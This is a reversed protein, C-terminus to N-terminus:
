SERSLQTSIFEYAQSAVEERSHEGDVILVPINKQRRIMDCITLYAERLETLKEVNEHVQKQEGRSDIRKCATEPATDIFIVLDPLIMSNLRLYGLYKLEPFERYIGANQHIEATHGTLISVAAACVEDNFSEKKYLAAWAIMNLLPSGDLIISDSVYWRILEHHLHNRLMLETLKPIKYVKLSKAKKAYASIAHRINETVFPQLDQLDRNEYLMLKDSVLSVTSTGSLEQAIMRSISSKGSGDIGIFAISRSQRERKTYRKHKRAAESGAVTILTQELHRTIDRHQGSCVQPPGVIVYNWFPLLLASSRPLARETGALFVPVIPVDPYESVLRGIGSKFQLMEGPKGRTGEPFIIMNHKKEIITKLEDLVGKTKSYEGRDIFVPDFLFKVVGFLLRSRSFYGKAAVAHTRCLDRIPILGFLVFIDLHSNHNAIIIYQDLNLLHEKGIVTVGSFLKLFPRLFFIHIFNRLM